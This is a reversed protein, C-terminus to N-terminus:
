KYEIIVPCDIVKATMGDKDYLSLQVKWCERAPPDQHQNQVLLNLYLVNWEKVVVLSFLFCLQQLLGLV